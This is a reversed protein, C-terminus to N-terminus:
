VDHQSCYPHEGPKGCTVCEKNKIRRKITENYNAELKQVKELCKKCLEDRIFQDVLKFSMSAGKGEYLIWRNFM